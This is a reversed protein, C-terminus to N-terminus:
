KTNRVSKLLASFAYEKYKSPDTTKYLSKGVSLIDILQTYLDNLKEVNSQVIAKRKDTIDFQLNNDNTISSVAAELQEIIIDNLGVANLPEKYKKLFAVVLLLNKRVGEADRSMIKQSLATLGFDKASTKISDKALRLYGRIKAIPDSLNDMTTYLRRTINKVEDTETKPSVLEDISNIKVEFATIYDGNFVPSFASFDALDRQLYTSANKCIVPLEEDKCNYNRTKVKKMM